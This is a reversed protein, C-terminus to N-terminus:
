ECHDLVCPITLRTRAGRGREPPRTPFRELGFIAQKIRVRVLLDMKRALVADARYLRYYLALGIWLHGERIFFQEHIAQKRQKLAL